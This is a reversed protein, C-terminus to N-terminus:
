WGSAVAGCSSFALPEIQFAGGIRIEPAPAYRL